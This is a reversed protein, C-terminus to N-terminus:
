LGQYVPYLFCPANQFLGFLYFCKNKLLMLIKTDRIDTNSKEKLIDVVYNISALRAPRLEPEAKGFQSM